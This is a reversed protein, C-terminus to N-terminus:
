CQKNELPFSNQVMPKADATSLDAQGIQCGNFASTLDSIWILPQLETSLVRAISFANIDVELIDSSYWLLNITFRSFKNADM